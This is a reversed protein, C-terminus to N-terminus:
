YSISVHSSNLRTSTRDGHHLAELALAKEFVDAAPQQLARPGSAGHRGNQNEQGKEAAGDDGVVNGQDREHGEGDGYQAHRTLLSRFLTTYPLHTSRMSLQ